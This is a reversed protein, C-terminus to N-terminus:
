WNRLEKRSNSYGGSWIQAYPRITVSDELTIHYKGKLDCHKGIYVNSGAEIGAVNARVYGYLNKIASKLDFKM